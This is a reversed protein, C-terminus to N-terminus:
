LLRGLEGCTIWEAIPLQTNVAPIILRYVLPSDKGYLQGSFSPSWILDKDWSGRKFALDSEADM